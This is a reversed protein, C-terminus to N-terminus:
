PRTFTELDLDSGRDLYGLRNTFRGGNDIGDDGVSYLVFGMPEPRYKLPQNSYPDIPIAPLYNPVLDELSDPWRGEDSQFLRVGLDAQLMASEAQVRWRTSNRHQDSRSYLTEVLVNELRTEWGYVHENFARDRSSVTEMPEVEAESRRLVEIVHRSEELSLESRIATLDAHGMGKFAIGILDQLELGGRQLMTGLRVNALALEAARGTEGAAAAAKSEASLARAFNRRDMIADNWFENNLNSAPNFPIYNAEQLLKVAEAHLRAIEDPGTQPNSAHKAIETIRAYHNPEGTISPPFPALWLMQWYLGGLPVGVVLLLAVLVIRAITTRKPSDTRLSQSVLWAFTAVAATLEVLFLGLIMVDSSQLDTEYMIGLQNWGLHLDDLLRLFFAAAPVCPVLLLMTLWRRPSNVLGYALAVLLALAVAAIFLAFPWDPEQMRRGIALLGALTLGVILLALFLDRLGFRWNMLAEAADNKTGFCRADRRIGIVFGVVIPSAMAFVVALEYARIPVLLMVAGWVALARWFWHVTGTAAWIAVLGLFAMTGVLALITLHFKPSLIVYQLM